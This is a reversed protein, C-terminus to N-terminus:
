LYKPTNKTTTKRYLIYTFKSIKYPGKNRKFRLQDSYLSVIDFLYLMISIHAYEKTQFASNRFAGFVLM